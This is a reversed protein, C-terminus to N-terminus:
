ITIINNSIESDRLKINSNIQLGRLGSGCSDVEKPFVTAGVCPEWASELRCDAYFCGNLTVAGRTSKKWRKTRFRM